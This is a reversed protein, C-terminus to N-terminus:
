SNLGSAWALYNKLEKDTVEIDLRGEQFIMWSDHAYRGVGHLKRVDPRWDGSVYEGSMRIISSARRNQFGCCRIMSAVDSHDATSMDVPTPYRDFLDWICSRVQKYFTQNLLMCAVLMKWPNHRLEEQLYSM